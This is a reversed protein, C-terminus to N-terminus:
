FFRYRKQPDSKPDSPPADVEIPETNAVRLIAIKDEVARWVDPFLEQAQARDQESSSVYEAIIDALSEAAGDSELQACLWEVVKPRTENNHVMDNFSEAANEQPSYGAAGVGSDHFDPRQEQIFGILSGKYREALMNILLDAQQNTAGRELIERIARIQDTQMM